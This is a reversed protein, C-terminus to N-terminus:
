AAQLKCSSALLQRRTSLIPVRLTWTFPSLNFTPNIIDVSQDYYYAGIDAITSDPDLPSSPDGADICPSEVNLYYASDGTTSYFLPDLFLNYYIDCSDGNANITSIEGLSPPITNGTFNAYENDYFDCYSISADPSNWLAAGGNGVNGTVITNLILPNAELILLGGGEAVSFNGSITCNSITASSVAYFIGGGGNLSFIDNVSNGCIVSRSIETISLKCYVGGGFFNATNEDIRCNTITSSDEIFYSGGGSYNAINGHINCDRISASCDYFYIGGGSSDTTNGKFSCGIITPNSDEGCYLGGGNCCAYNSDIITNFIMSGPSNRIFVGGGDYESFNRTISCDIINVAGPMSYCCIGGGFGAENDSIQCNQITMMESVSCHIGGGELLATNRLISSNELTIPSIFIEIGGGSIGENDCILCESIVANSYYCSIGGSGNDSHNLKIDCNTITPSGAGYCTIGGGFDYSRNIIITCNNIDPSADYWCVIGGGDGGWNDSIYCYTITPSARYCTIGGGFGNSSNSSIRCHSITPNSYHCYVGCDSSNTILCYELISSEYAYLNFMIGEWSEVGADPIFKISDNETGVAYLYGDIFFEYAGCFLFVAGPEITLSDMVEVSIDGIVFYTTDELVGSLGGSIYVQGWAAGSFIVAAAIVLLRIVLKSMTGELNVLSITYNYKCGVHGVVLLWYGAGM